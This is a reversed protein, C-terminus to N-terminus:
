AQFYILGPKDRFPPAAIVPKSANVDVFGSLVNSRGAITVFIVDGKEFEKIIELVKLPTKHM